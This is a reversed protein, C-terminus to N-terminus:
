GVSSVLVKDIRKGDMDIVEFKFKNFVFSDGTKPQSRIQYIIFGALTSYSKEDPLLTLKLLKKLETLKLEGDMLITGDKRKIVLEEDSKHVDPLDGMINEVLNHLTVIGETEGHENVVFGMHVRNRRFDDLIKLASRRQPFFIPPVIKPRLDYPRGSTLHLIDKISITGIIKDLSGDCIPYKTFSAKSVIALMEEISQNIDVWVVEKRRVMVDTAIYEGFRFVSQMIDREQKEIIGYQSGTEIMYKLEDETIPPENKDKILLLKLFLKTSMTLIFVIPLTIYALGKMFPSFFITIKEPNNLAISKPVLEGVILSFYTIILVILGFSIQESYQRSWEWNEFFPKVDDTFAEAGYAGAIIGVLTIGIQVTSLFKEPEKLLELAISAGKSGQKAKQALTSKRSSVLAIECM